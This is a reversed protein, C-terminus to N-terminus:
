IGMFDYPSKKRQTFVGNILADINQQPQISNKQQERMARKQMVLINNDDTRKRILAEKAADDANNQNIKDLALGAIAQWM